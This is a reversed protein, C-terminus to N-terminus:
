EDFVDKLSDLVLSYFLETGTVVDPPNYDGNENYFKELDESPTTPLEVEYVWNKSAKEHTKMLSKLLGKEDQTVFRNLCNAIGHAYENRKDYCKELVKYDEEDIFHNNTMWRFMSLKPNNKGNKKVLQFVEKNFEQEKEKDRTTICQGGIWKTKVFDYYEGTQEDKAFGNSYFSRITDKWHSVFNEFVMLFLSYFVLEKQLKEKNTIIDIFDTDM